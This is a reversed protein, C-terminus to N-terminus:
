LQYYLSGLCCDVHLLINKRIALNSLEVIPDMTGHAYNPTSGVIGITNSNILKEMEGVKVTFTDEDLPAFILKIEMLECAKDFAAHVGFPAVVEPETIGKAFGWQKFTRMAMIISATGGSTVIGCTDETGFFYDASMRVIEREMKATYGFIEPHLPNSVAFLSFIEKQVDILGDEGHYVSGSAFQKEGNWRKKEYAAWGKCMTLLEERGIGKDPLENFQPADLVIKAWADEAAKRTKLCEGDLQGRAVNKVTALFIKQFARKFGYKRILKRMQRLAYFLFIYLLTQRCIQWPKKGGYSLLTDASSTVRALVSFLIQATEFGFCTSLWSDNM